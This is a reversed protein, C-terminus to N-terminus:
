SHRAGVLDLIWTMIDNFVEDALPERHLEHLSDPYTKFACIDKHMEFFRASAEVSTIPDREGHFLLLPIQINGKDSLLRGSSMNVENFLRLSIRGHMLADKDTEEIESAVSTMQSSKIGTSLIWRPMIANAMRGLVQIFKNPPSVLELWPSSVIGGAFDQRRANLFNLVLNGGMSHGYIFAPIEGWNRKCRRVLVGIDDMLEGISNAHGRKGESTGHGRYDLAYVMIGQKCFRRAWDDYRGAHEGIGHVLCITAVPYGGPKWFHGRLVTGDNSVLNFTQHIKGMLLFSAFNQHLVFSISIPL